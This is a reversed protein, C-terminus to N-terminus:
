RARVRIGTYCMMAFFFCEHVRSRFFRSSPAALLDDGAFRVRADARETAMYRTDRRTDGVFDGYPRHVFWRTNVSPVDIITACVRKYPLEVEAARERLRSLVRLLFLRMVVCGITSWVCASAKKPLTKASVLPMTTVMM